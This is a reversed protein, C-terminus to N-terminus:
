AQPLTLELLDGGIPAFGRSRYFALARSNDAESVVQLSGLELSIAYGEAYELLQRGVGEHEHEHSVFLQEIRLADGAREVAVYGAATGDVEAVFVTDTELVELTVQDRWGRREGFVTKALGFLIAEDDNRFARIEAKRYTVPLITSRSAPARGPSSPPM